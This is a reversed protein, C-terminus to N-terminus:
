AKVPRRLLRSLGVTIASGEACIPSVKPYVEASPLRNFRTTVM